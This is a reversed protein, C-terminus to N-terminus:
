LYDCILSDHVYRKVSYGAAEFIAQFKEQYEQTPPHLEIFVRKIDGACTKLLETTIAVDEGGEIDIKAFDFVGENRLLDPLTICPVQMKADFRDQLSNMTTNVGCWHFTATGTHGALAKNMLLVEPGAIQSTLKQLKSFHSPTPELCLIKEAQPSIHFAFLGINAGIDLFTKHEPLIIGKYYNHDFQQMIERTYNRDNAFHEALEQDTLDIEQHTGNILKM